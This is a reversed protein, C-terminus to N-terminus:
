EDLKQEIRDLRETLRTELELLRRELKSDLRDIREMVVIQLYEQSVYAGEIIEQKEQLAQIDRKANTWGMVVTFFIVIASLLLPVNITWDFKINSSAM